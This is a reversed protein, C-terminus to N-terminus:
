LVGKRPTIYIEDLYLTQPLYSINALFEGADSVSIMDNKSFDERNDWIATAIAGLYANVVKVQYPKWEERLAKALGSIAHKSACYASSNEFGIRSATSGLFVIISNNLRKISPAFIKLLQMSSFLNLQFHSSLEENEIQEISKFSGDGQAFYIILQLSDPYSQNQKTFLAHWDTKFKSIHDQNTLDFCHNVNEQFTGAYESGRRSFGFLISNEDNRNKLNEFISEGIGSGSGFVLILKKM